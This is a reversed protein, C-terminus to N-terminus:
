ERALRPGGFLYGQAHHIPHDLLEVLTAEDEVKEPVVDIHARNLTEWFGDLRVPDAEMARLQERLIGADVKLYRFGRRSLEYFNMDLRTVHDLSFRFGIESLEGLHRTMEPSLDIVDAQSFEFFLNQSLESNDAMFSIFDRFFRADRLSHASIHAFFAVGDRKQRAKRVLQVCRFLLLNDLESALGLDGAVPMARGPSM